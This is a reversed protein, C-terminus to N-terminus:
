REITFVSRIPRFNCGARNSLKPFVPGCTARCPPSRRPSNRTMLRYTPRPWRLRHPGHSRHPPAARAAASGIRSSFNVRSTHDNCCARARTRSAYDTRSVVGTRALPASLAPAASVVQPGARHRVPQRSCSGHRAVTNLGRPGGHRWWLVAGVGAVMVVVVSATVPVALSRRRGRRGSELRGAERRPFSALETQLTRIDELEARCAECSDLHAQCYSLRAAALRGNAYSELDDQSLHRIAGAVNVAKGTLEPELVSDQDLM